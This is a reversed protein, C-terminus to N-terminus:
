HGAKRQFTLTRSTTSPRGGAPTFRVRAVIRLTRGKARSLARAGATSLRVKVTVTGTKTVTSAAARTNLGSTDIKGPGPVKISLTAVSGAVSAKTITFANAPEHHIAIAITNSVHGCNVTLPLTGTADAPVEVTFGTASWDAPTFPRDGLAVTGGVGLDSGAIRITDGPDPASNYPNISPAACGYLAADALAPPAPLVRPLPATAFTVQDDFATADNSTVTLRVRFREGAPLGTVPAAVQQAGSGGPAPREDTSSAYASDLSTVDFRYTGALGYTDVTGHLTAASTSVGTSAIALATPADPTTFTGDAGTSTRNGTTAVVQVHYTTSPELGGVAQTVDVLGTGSGGDAEPTSLGYSTSPGYNFHYTTPAGHADITGSLTAQRTTLGTAGAAAAPATTFTQDAGVQAGGTGNDASIRFHYTTSPELGTLTTAVATDTTASGADGDPQPATSGYAISTGYDVHFTTPSNTPNVTGHIRAGTPTIASAFAPSGDVVPPAPATTFTQDDGLISGGGNTGVLRFHYTANPTLGTLPASAPVAGSGSGASAGTTSTGYSPDAGYEFHYTAATGGPNVTGNLTASTTGIPAAAGTVVTPGAFATFRDVASTGNDAAYVTGTAHNVALAALSVVSGAAFTQITAAGGAAFHTIQLGAPASEGVFLEGSTADATFALPAGRTGDDVTAAFDGAATYRDVRGKCGDLVYVRHAADVALGGPCVFAGDPAGSAGDFSSVFAGTSGDFVDIVPATTVDDTAPAYVAGSTPDVAVAGYGITTGSGTADLPYAFAGAASFKLVAGTGTANDLASVYLAGSGAPDVALAGPSSYAAGDISFASQFGGAADFREVRPDPTGDVLTHGPDVAFVAGSAQLVVVGSPGSAFEGDGNGASGFAGAFSHGTTALATSGGALPLVMAVVVLLLARVHRAPTISLRRAAGTPVTSPM